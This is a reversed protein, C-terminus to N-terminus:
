VGGPGYAPDIKAGAGVDPTNQGAIPSQSRDASQASSPGAEYVRSNRKRPHLPLGFFRNADKGPKGATKVVPKTYKVMTAKKVTTAHTGKMRAMVERMKAVSDKMSKISEPKVGAIKYLEDLLAETIARKM